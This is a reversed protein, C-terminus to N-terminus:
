KSSNWFHPFLVEFYLKLPILLWLRVGCQRRFLMYEWPPPGKPSHLLKIRTKISLDQNMWPPATDEKECYGLVGPAIFIRFGKKVARLGYDIDGMAHTYKSSLNGVELAIGNPILVINGNMSFCEQASNSEDFIGDNTNKRYGGYAMKGTRPDKCAGVIIPGVSNSPTLDLSTKVLIQLANTTLDVDDNLWLFLDHSNEKLAIRWALRMGGCWYLDGNGQIIRICPFEQLIADATGDTSGDDVLYVDIFFGEPLKQSFLSRLCCLTKEKRNYSTILVAINM